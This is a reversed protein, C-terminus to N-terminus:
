GLVRFLATNAHPQPQSISLSFEPNNQSCSLTTSTGPVCHSQEQEWNGGKDRHAASLREQDTSTSTPASVQALHRRCTHSHRAAWQRSGQCQASLVVSLLHHKGASPVVSPLHHKGAQCQAGVSPRHHRRASPDPSFGAGPGPGDM